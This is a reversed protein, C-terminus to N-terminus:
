IFSFDGSNFDSLTHFLVLVGNGNGTALWSHTGDSFSNAMLEAFSDIATGNMNSYLQIVDGGSQGAGQFGWVVDTQNNPTIRIIDDGLGGYINDHGSAGVLVDNGANGYLNDNGLGGYLVDDGDSADTFGRGAYITDDGANGYITDNGLDGYLTDSGDTADSISVGGVIIDNGNGGNVTDGSGGGFLVNNLDNGMVSDAGGGGIANEIDANFAIRVTESGAINAGADGIDLTVGSNYSSANFTDNGSGDWISTYGSNFSYSTDGANYSTNAGYLLQLTAIDYIQPATVSPSGNYAMATFETMIEAAPIGGSIPTSPTAGFPHELGLAHGVEHVSVYYAVNGASLAGLTTPSEITVDGGIGSGPFYAYGSVNTNALEGNRFAIDGDGLIVETFTINAVDAYSQLINRIQAQDASSMQSVTEGYAGTGSAWSGNFSYTLSVAQGNSSAWSYGSDLSTYIQSLTTTTM